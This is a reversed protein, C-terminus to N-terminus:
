RDRGTDTGGPRGGNQRERESPISGPGVGLDEVARRAEDQIRQWRTRSQDGMGDRGDRGDVPRGGDTAAGNDHRSAGASAFAIIAEQVAAATEEGVKNEIQRAVDAPPITQYRLLPQTVGESGAENPLDVDEESAFGMLDSTFEGRAEYSEGYHERLYAVASPWDATDPDYWVGDGDHQHMWEEAAALADSVDEHEDTAHVTRGGSKSPDAPQLDVQFLWRGRAPGRPFVVGYLHAPDGDATTAEPGRWVVRDDDVPEDITRKSLMREWGNVRRPVDVADLEQALARKTAEPPTGYHMEDSRWWEGDDEEDPAPSTGEESPEPAPEAAEKAEIHERVFALAEDVTDFREGGSEETPLWVSSREEGGVSDRHVKKVRYDTGERYVDVHPVWGRDSTRATAVFSREPYGERSPEFEDVDAIRWPHPPAVSVGADEDAEDVDPEAPEKQVDGAGIQEKLWEMQQFLDLDNAQFPRIVNWGLADIHPWLEDTYDKGALLVFTLDESEDFEAELDNRIRFAWQGRESQSLDGLDKSYPAIEADPDLLYHKASLIYWDDGFREAYKRKLNFYNSTYLDKAARATDAKESGCGVLVITRGQLDAEAGAEYQGVRGGEPEAPHNKMWSAADDVAEEFTSQYGPTVGSPSEFGWSEPDDSRKKKVAFSRGEFGDEPEWWYSEDLATTLEYNGTSAQRAYEDRREKAEEAERREMSEKRREAAERKREMAEQEHLPVDEFESLGEGEPGKGAERLTQERAGRERPTKIAEDPDISALRDVTRQGIGQLDLLRNPKNKAWNIVRSASQYKNLLKNTSPVSVGGHFHLAYYDADAVSRKQPGSWEREEREPREAGGTEFDATVDEREEDVDVSEDPGVWSTLGEEPRRSEARRAQEAKRSAQRDGAQEGTLDVQSGAERGAEVERRRQEERRRQRREAAEQASEGGEGFERLDKEGAAGLTRQGREPDERTGEARRPSTPGPETGGSLDAQTGPPGASEDPSLAGQWEGRTQEFPLKDVDGADVRDRAAELAEPHLMKLYGFVLTLQKGSDLRQEATFQQRDPTILKGGVDFDQRFEDIRQQLTDIPRDTGYEGADLVDQLAVHVTRTLALQTPWESPNPGRYPRPPWREMYTLLEDVAEEQSDLLSRVYEANSARTWDRSRPERRIGWPHENSEQTRHAPAQVRTAELYIHRDNFAPHPEPSKYVVRSPRTGVLRWGNVENPPESEPYVPVAPETPRGSGAERKWEAAGKGGIRDSEGVSFVADIVFEIGFNDVASQFLGFDRQDFGAYAEQRSDAMAAEIIHTGEYNQGYTQLDQWAENRRPNEMGPWEEGEGVATAETGEVTRRIGRRISEPLDDDALRDLAQIAVRSAHREQPASDEETVVTGNPLEVFVSFWDPESGEDMGRRIVVYLRHDPHWWRAVETPAMTVSEQWPDAVHEAESIEDPDPDPGPHDAPDIGGGNGNAM